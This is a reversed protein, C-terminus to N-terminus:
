VFCHVAEIQKLIRDPARMPKRTDRDVFVISSDARNVLEGAENYIEFRFQLRVPSVKELISRVRILEDFRVPKLYRQNLSIVPFIIGQEELEKENIGLERFLNTRGAHYFSAYNGHYVYGM